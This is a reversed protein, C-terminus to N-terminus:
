VEMPYYTPCLKLINIFNELSLIVYKGKTIRNVNIVETYEHIILPITNKPPRMEGLVKHYNISNVSSKCQISFPLVGNELENKNMLDVKDADRSVSESRSTVIHPFFQKFVKRMDREFDHGTTRNNNKRPIKEM